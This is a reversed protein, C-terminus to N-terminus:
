ANTANYKLCFFSYTLSLLKALMCNRVFNNCAYQYIGLQNKLNNFINLYVVLVFLRTLIFIFELKSRLKSTKVYM